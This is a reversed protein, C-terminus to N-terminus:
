LQVVKDLTVGDKSHSLFYPLFDSYSELHGAVPFLMKLAPIGPKNDFNFKVSITTLNGETDSM